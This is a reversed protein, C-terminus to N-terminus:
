DASRVVVQSIATTNRPGRRVGLIELTITDTDTRPVRVLQVSRSRPDPDLRQVVSGGDGFTWRVRAIRNNEAYRDVGSAPDTKAYGPVLGVEAVAVDDSLRLTLKQGIATGACRWATDARDDIANGPGYTVRHGASDTSAPATCDASIARVDVDAVPGQWGGPATSPEAEAPGAHPTRTKEPTTTRAASPRATGAQDPGDGALAHGVAYAATVLVAASAAIAVPRFWRAERRWTAHLERAPEDTPHPGALLVDQHAATGHGAPDPTVALVDPGSELARRYAARYADAFEEPVEPPPSDPYEAGSM